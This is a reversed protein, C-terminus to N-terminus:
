NNCNKDEEAIWTMFATDAGGVKVVRDKWFMVGLGHENDWKCNLQIGIYPVGDFSVNMIFIKVPYMLPKLDNSHTINPMIENIEHEDYGYEDQWVNYNSFIVDFILDLLKTQNEILYDYGKKHMTTVEDIISDGGINLTIDLKKNYYKNWDVLNISGEWFIDNQTINQIM